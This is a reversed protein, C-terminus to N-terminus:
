IDDIDNNNHNNNNNNDLGTQKVVCNNCESTEILAEIEEQTQNLCEPHYWEKCTSCEAM